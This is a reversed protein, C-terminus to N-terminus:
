SVRCHLNATRTGDDAPNAKGVGRLLVHGGWEVLVRDNGTTRSRNRGVVLGNQELGNEVTFDVRTLDEGLDEAEVVNISSVLTHVLTM